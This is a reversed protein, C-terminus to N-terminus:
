TSMAPVFDPKLAVARLLSGIAEGRKGQLFLIQGLVEHAEPLNLHWCYRM